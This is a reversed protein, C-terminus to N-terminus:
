IQAPWLYFHISKSGDYSIVATKASALEDNHSLDSIRPFGLGIGHLRPRFRFRLICCSVACGTVTGLMLGQMTDGVIPTCYPSANM